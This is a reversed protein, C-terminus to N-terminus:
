VKSLKKLSKKVLKRYCVYLVVPIVFELIMAPILISAPTGIVLTSVLRGVGGLFFVLAIFPVFFSQEQINRAVWFCFGGYALWFVSFFRLENDVTAEVAGSAGPIAEAGGVLVNVGTLIAVLSMAYLVYKLTAEM